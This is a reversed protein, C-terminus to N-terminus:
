FDGLSKNLSFTSEANFYLAIKQQTLYYYNPQDLVLSGIYALSSKITNSTKSALFAWGSQAGIKSESIVQLWGVIEEADSKSFGLELLEQLFVEPAIRLYLPSPVQKPADM